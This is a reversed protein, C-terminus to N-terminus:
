AAAAAITRTRNRVFAEWRRAVRRRTIRMARSVVRSKRASYTARPDSGVAISILPDVPPIEWASRRRRRGTHAGFSRASDRTRRRRRRSRRARCRLTRDGDEADDVRHQKTRKGVAAGSRRSRTPDSWGTFLGSPTPAEYMSKRSQRARLRENSLMDPIMVPDATSSPSPPAARTGAAQTDQSRVRVRPRAVARRGRSGHLRPGRPLRSARRAGIPPGTSTATRGRGPITPRRMRRRPRARVLDDADDGAVREKELVGADQKREHLLREGVPRAPREVDDRPERRADGDFRRSGLEVAIPRRELALIGLAVGAERDRGAREGVRQEAVPPRRQRHQGARDDEEDQDRARVDGAQQQRAAGGAPVLERESGRESGSSGAEHALEEGLREHEGRQTAAGAQEEARHEEDRMRSAHEGCLDRAELAGGDIRARDGEGRGDATTSRGERQLRARSRTTAARARRAVASRRGRRRRRGSGRARRGGARQLRREADHQEDARTEEAARIERQSARLGAEGGGANQGQAQRQGGGRVRARRLAGREEPAGQCRDRAQGADAGRAEGAAQRAPRAHGHGVRRGSVRLEGAGARRLGLHPEHRLSRQRGEADGDELSAPDRIGVALARSGDDDDIAPEGRAEPGSDEASPRVIM